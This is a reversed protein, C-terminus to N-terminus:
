MQNNFSNLHIYSLAILYTEDDSYPLAFTDNKRRDLVFHQKNSNMFIKGLTTNGLTDQLIEPLEQEYIERGSWLPILNYILDKKNKNCTIILKIQARIYLESGENTPLRRAYKCNLLYQKLILFFINIKRNENKEKHNFNYLFLEGNKKLNPRSIKFIITCHNIINVSTKCELFFHRLSEVEYAGRKTRKELSCFTCRGREEKTLNDKTVWHKTQNNLM